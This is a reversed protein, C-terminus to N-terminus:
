CKLIYDIFNVGIIEDLTVRGVKGRCAYEWEAETPLRFTKHDLEGLKRCFEMAEFWTVSEVPKKDGKYSSPSLGTVTRYQEQTIAHKSIFFPKTISVSHLTEDRGLAERYPENHPSGMMFKGAKVHAFEIDVKNTPDGYGDMAIRFGITGAKVTPNTAGRQATRLWNPGDTFSGGRLCKDTGNAPGTPDIQDSNPYRGFWDACWEWVNGHMDFLGLENPPYSGVPVTGSRTGFNALHTDISKGFHYYHQNNTNKAVVDSELMWHSFLPGMMRKKKFYEEVDQRHTEQKEITFGAKHFWEHYTEHPKKIKLTHPQHPLNEQPLVLHAFAKNVSRYLHTGHRSCWPHCRVYVTGNPALVSRVKDLVRIPDEGQIHDLVDYLLVIDYPGHRAVTSFNDTMDVGCVNHYDIDYGIAWRANMQNAVVVAHGEGSGFDLFSSGSVTMGFGTIIDHARKLKQEQSNSDIISFPPVAEPWDPDTIDPIQDHIDAWLAAYDKIYQGGDNRVPERCDRCIFQYLPGTKETEGYVPVGSRIDEINTVIRHALRCEALRRGGCHPCLFQHTM